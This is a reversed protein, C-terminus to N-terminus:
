SSENLALKSRTFAEFAEDNTYEHLCENVPLSAFVFFAILSLGGLIVLYQM